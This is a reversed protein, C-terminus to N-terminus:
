SGPSEGAHGLQAKRQGDQGLLGCWADPTRWSALSCLYERRGEAELGMESRAKM